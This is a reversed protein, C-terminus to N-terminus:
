AAMSRQRKEHSQLFAGLTRRENEALNFRFRTFDDGDELPLAAQVPLQVAVGPIRLSGPGPYELRGDLRVGGESIDTICVAIQRGSINLQAPIEYFHRLTKRRDIETSCTRVIRVLTSQLSRVKDAVSGCMRDVENAQNGTNGAEMAVQQMRNTVEETARTTETVSSAIQRTEHVQDEVALTMENAAANVGQIAHAIDGVATVAVNTSAHVQRVLDVIKSTATSTQESLSKVEMAIVGFGRGDQGSRAAEVGANIALLSTQRAIETILQTIGDIEGVVKSLTDISRSTNQSASVASATATRTSQVQTSVKSISAALRDTAARAEQMTAQTEHAAAAVTESNTSLHDATLCMEATIEKMEDMFGVVTDVAGRTEREVQDVMRKLESTKRIDGDAREQEMDLRMQDREQRGQEAEEEMRLRDVAAEHFRELARAMSGIEDTRDLAPIKIELDGAALKRMQLTLLSLPKVITAALRTGVLLALLTLMVAGVIQVGNLMQMRSDQTDQASLSWKAIDARAKAVVDRYNQMTDAAMASGALEIAKPATEVSRGLSIIPDGIKERWLKSAKDMAELAPLVQDGIETQRAERRAAEMSAIYFASADQYGKIRREDRDSLIFARSRNALDIVAGYARDVNDLVRYSSANSRAALDLSHSFYLGAGVVCVTMGLLSAFAAMLKWTISSNKQSM